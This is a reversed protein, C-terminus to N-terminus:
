RSKPQAWESPNEMELAVRRAMYNLYGSTKMGYRTAGSLSDVASKEAHPDFPVNKFQKLVTIVQKRDTANKIKNVDPFVAEHLVFGDATNEVIVVGTIPKYSEIERYVVGVKAEGNEDWGIYMRKLTRSYPDESSVIELGALAEDIVAQVKDATAVSICALLLGILFVRIRM